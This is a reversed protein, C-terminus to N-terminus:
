PVASELHDICRTAFQIVEVSIGKLLLVDVVLLPRYGVRHKSAKRSQGFAVIWRRGRL